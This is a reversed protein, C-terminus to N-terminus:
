TRASVPQGPIFVPASADLTANEDTEDAPAETLSGGFARQTGFATRPARGRNGRSQRGGRRGRPGSGGRSGEATNELTNSSAVDAAASEPAAADTARTRNGGGSQSGGRPRGGRNRSPRGRRPPRNQGRQTGNPQAPAAQSDAM